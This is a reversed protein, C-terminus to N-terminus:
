ERQESLVGNCASRCESMSGFNNPNGRCGTYEFEKCLGTMYDFHYRMESGRCSGKTAPLRCAAPLQVNICANKCENETAFRNSNGKCGGYWFRGCYGKEADYYYWLTYNGGKCLVGRERPLGCTAPDTGDCGYGNEGQAGTVGDPCCGYRTGRCGGAIPYEYEPCGQGSPG